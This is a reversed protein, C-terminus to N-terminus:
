RCAADVRHRVGLTEGQLVAGCLGEACMGDTYAAGPQVVSGGHILSVEAYGQFSLPCTRTMYITNITNELLSIVGVGTPGLCMAVVKTRLFSVVMQLVKVGGFVANSRSVETYTSDNSM